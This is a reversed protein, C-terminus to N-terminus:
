LDLLTRTKSTLHTASGFAKVMESRSLASKLLDIRRRNFGLEEQERPSLSTCVKVLKKEDVFMNDLEADLRHLGRRDDHKSFQEGSQYDEGVSPMGGSSPVPLKSFKKALQMGYTWRDRPESIRGRFPPIPGGKSYGTPRVSGKGTVRSGITELPGLDRKALRRFEALAKRNASEYLPQVLNQEEALTKADWRVANQGTLAGGTLLSLLKPMVNDFIVQNGLRALVQVEDDMFSGGGAITSAGEAVIWAALPWRTGFGLFSSHKFFWKYFDRREWPQTYERNRLNFLNHLNANHWTPKEFARQHPHWDGRQLSEGPPVEM